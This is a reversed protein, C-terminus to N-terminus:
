VKTIVYRSWRKAGIKKIQGRSVLTNLERQITKESCDSFATSIDKISIGDLSSPSSRSIDKILGLIKLGRDEKTAITNSNTHMHQKKIVSLHSQIPSNKFSMPYLTRKASFEKNDKITDKQTDEFSKRTMQSIQPLEEAIDFMHESLTFSANKQNQFVVGGFSSHQNESQYSHLETVLLSFEKKIIVANMESVFGIMHTIEVFSVIEEIRALIGTVSIHKEVPSLTSLRCMDSLLDVSLTRLKGKLADDSDMCDTVMYLATVLKETKKTAFEYIPKSYEPLASGQINKQIDKQENMTRKSYFFLNRTAM